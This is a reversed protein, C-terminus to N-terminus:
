HRPPASTGVTLRVLLLTWAAGFAWGAVVDSPWHVALVLRTSGVLLSLLIAAVIGATRRAGSWPALLAIALFAAMTNAAHGSPFSMTQVAVLRGSPDPRLRDFGAKQIEVLLRGSLVIALLLIARRRHASLLLLVAAAAALIILAPWNGLRTLILAAPVLFPANAARLLAEDIGSGAGGGLLMALWLAALATLILTVASDSIRRM